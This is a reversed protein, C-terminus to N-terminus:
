IDGYPAIKRYYIDLRTLNELISDGEDVESGVPRLVALSGRMASVRYVKDDLLSRVRDKIDIAM